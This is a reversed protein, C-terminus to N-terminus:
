KKQRAAGKKGILSELRQRMAEARAPDSAAQNRAQPLDTKLNYLQTASANPRVAGQADVDSTSLGLKDFPMGWPAGAPVQVTMGCSGQKPLFVWDDQRLAFGGTGLFLTETRKVPANVPDTFAALESAGDPSAGEPM